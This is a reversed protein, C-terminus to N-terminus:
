GNSGRKCNLYQRGEREASEVFHSFVPMQSLDHRQRIQRVWRLLELGARRCWANLVDARFTSTPEIERMWAVPLSRIGRALDDAVDGVDHVLGMLGIYDQYARTREKSMGLLSHPVIFLPAARRWIDAKRIPAIRERKATTCTLELLSRIHEGDTSIRHKICLREHYAAAVWISRSSRGVRDIDLGPADVVDDLRRWAVSWLFHSALSDAVLHTDLEQPWGAVEALALGFRVLYSDRRYVQVPRAMERWGIPDASAIRRSVHNLLRESSPQLDVIAYWHTKFRQSPMWPENM